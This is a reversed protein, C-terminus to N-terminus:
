LAGTSKRPSIKEKRFKERVSAIRKYAGYKSETPRHVRVGRRIAYNKLDLEDIITKNVNKMHAYPLDNIVELIKKKQTFTCLLYTNLFLSAVTKRARSNHEDIFMQERSESYCHSANWIQEIQRATYYLTKHSKKRKKSVGCFFNHAVRTLYSYAKVGKDPDYTTLLKEWLLSMCGNIVSPSTFYAKPQFNYKGRVGYTISKLLPHISANYLKEDRTRIYEQVLEEEHPGFYLTM